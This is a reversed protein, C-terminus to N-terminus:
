SRSAEAYAHGVRRVFKGPKRRYLRKGSRLASRRLARRRRSIIKLLTARTGRGVDLRRGAGQKAGTQLRGALLALDHEEGLLEGLEDARRALLRLHEVERRKGQAAAGTSVPDRRQLMQAAYRLDKVRKRWQHMARGKDGKGRAARRRRRRGQRYIRVLGVEVTEIGERHPLSWAQVRGRLARLEGVVEARVWVDDNRRLAGDREVVLQNRLKVVGRRRALKKRNAQVLADLTSVLVEADRAGALRLGADRLVTDERRFVPEGLEGGLLGILARLRKLAKRTEHVTRAAPVEGHGQLLEIALDLQSLAMRRLGDPLAEGPLLAFQRDRARGARVSRREREARALVVGVGIAVTAALTAAVTAALPAVIAGHGAKRRGWPPRNAARRVALRGRIATRKTTMKQSSEGLMHQDRWFTVGPAATVGV